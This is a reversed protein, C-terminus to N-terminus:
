VEGGAAGDAYKPLGCHVCKRALFGKNYWWTGSFCQACRPCRWSSLRLGIVILFLMWLGAFFFAPVFTQFVRFVLVTFGLSAPVFAVWMSLYLNRLGRYRNWQGKYNGENM